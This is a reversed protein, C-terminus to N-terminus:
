LPERAAAVSFISCPKKGMMSQRGVGCLCALTQISLQSFVSFMRRSVLIFVQASVAREIQSVIQRSSKFIGPFCFTIWVSVGTRGAAEYVTWGAMVPLIISLPMSPTCSIVPTVLLPFLWPWLSRAGVRFDFSPTLCEPSRRVLSLDRVCWRSLIHVPHDSVSRDPMHTPRVVGLRVPSSAYFTRRSAPLM